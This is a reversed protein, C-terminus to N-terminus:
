TRIASLQMNIDEIQKTRVPTTHYKYDSIRVRRRTTTDQKLRLNAVIPNDLIVELGTNQGPDAVYNNIIIRTVLETTPPDFEVIKSNLLVDIVNKAYTEGAQRNKVDRQM